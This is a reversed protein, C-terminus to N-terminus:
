LLIARKNKFLYAKKSTGAAPDLVACQIDREFDAPLGPWNGAISSTSEPDLKDEKFDWRIYVAGKFFYGYRSYRGAGLM